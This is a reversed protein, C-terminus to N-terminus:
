CTHRARFQAKLDLVRFHPNQKRYPRLMLHSLNTMMFALNVTNTVAPVAEFVSDPVLANSPYNLASVFAFWYGVLVVIYVGLRIFFVNPINLLRHTKRKQPM